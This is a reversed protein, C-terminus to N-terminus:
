IVETLKKVKEINEELGKNRLQKATETYYNHNKLFNLQIQYWSKGSPLGLEKRVEEGRELFDSRGLNDVDADSMIKELRSKPNTPMKTALILKYVSSIEEENYGIFNLFGQSIEASWEENYKGNPKVIIDHLLAATELEFKEQPSVGEGEALRIAAHTVCKAHRFNHYEGNTNEQMYNKAFRYVQKLKNLKNKM